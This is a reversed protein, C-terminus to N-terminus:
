AILAKALSEPIDWYGYRNGRASAFREMAAAITHEGVSRAYFMPGGRYSPFGYGHLWVVDIDGARYAIGEELIRYGEAILPYLCREVVEQATIDRRQRVGYQEGQERFIELASEDEVPQRGEYRYYGHGAKQGFRGREYLRQVVIRYSDDDPLRGAKRQELVVKAAVDVGAMDIMRCPGMAMGWGELAQDIFSPTAGEMLLFETERLYGELMRNGIFGFCVGSVAAVKNIRKALQMITALVDPATTDCRVVELLRMIHAPSFFHMGLVDAARGSCSALVNVDLSSTNSALIAGPRAIEGLRRFIAKKIDFDEFVAEIILDCGALQLDDNTTHILAIRRDAEAASMRQKKVATEYTSRILGGARTLTEESLDQLIVPLGANAFSMAIGTGMTGAGIIGVSQIPRLSANAPMNPIRAAEREAFFAHRLAKSEDTDRCLLFRRREEELAEQFPLQGAQITAEVAHRRAHGGRDPPPLQELHQKAFIRQAEDASFTRHSLVRPGTETGALELAYQLASGALDDEFVADILGSELAQSAPVMEGGSIMQVATLLGVLRPLRQTGGAGPIVGLKVEPLGFRAGADAVRYHCSLALELGAGLTTGHMAAVVPKSMSDLYAHIENPHPEPLEPLDFETIDAGAMFTRGACRIVVARIDSGQELQRLTSLLQVRVAQTSANVPPNAITVVAVLGTQAVTVLQAM